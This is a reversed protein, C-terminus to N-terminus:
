RTTRALVENHNSTTGCMFPPCSGGVAHVTTAAHIDHTLVAPAAIAAAALGALAAVAIRNRTPTRPAATIM